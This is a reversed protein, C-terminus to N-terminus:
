IRVDWASEERAADAGLGRYGDDAMEDMASRYFDYLGADQCFSFQEWNPAENLNCSGELVFKGCDTDFLALKTHNDRSVATWGYRGCYETLDEWYRVASSKRKDRAMIQGVVFRAEQLRGMEALRRLMQLAGPGIRYTSVDLRRIVARDAVFRVFGAASLNALSVIKVVTEEDPLGGMLRELRDSQVYTKSVTRRRRRTIVRDEM